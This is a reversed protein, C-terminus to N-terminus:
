FAVDRKASSRHASLRRYSGPPTGYMQRFARTFQAQDSYGNELAIEALSIDTMLLSEAAKELRRARLLDGPTCGLFSRFVRALHTPHVGVTSAVQRIGLDEAHCDQILEYAARLWTPLSQEAPTSQHAVVALLESYLSEAKLSSSKDWRACEMLLTKALGCAHDDSIHAPGPPLGSDSSEARRETSVSITFFSGKGQEFHDRHTTGPPNYVLTTRRNPTASASSIYRGSTVLVFHAEVHTHVEVEEPPCDAIRHSLAIGDLSRTSQLEGFFVDHTLLLPHPSGRVHPFGSKRHEPKM